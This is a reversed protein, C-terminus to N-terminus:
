KSLIVNKSVPPGVRAGRVCASSLHDAQRSQQRKYNKFFALNSTDSSERKTSLGVARQSGNDGHSPQSECEQQDAAKKGKSKKDDASGSQQNMEVVVSVLRRSDRGEADDSM